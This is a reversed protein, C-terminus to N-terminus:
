APEPTEARLREGTLDRTHRTSLVNVAGCGAKRVAHRLEAQM